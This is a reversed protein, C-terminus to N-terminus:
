FTWSQGIVTNCHFGGVSLGFDFGAGGGYCSVGSSTGEKFGYFPGIEVWTGKEPGSLDERCKAGTCAM